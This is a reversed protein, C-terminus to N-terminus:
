DRHPKLGPTTEVRAAAAAAPATRVMSDASVLKMFPFESGVHLPVSRPNLPVRHKLPVSYSFIVCYRYMACHAIVNDNRTQSADLQVCQRGKGIALTAALATKGSGSGGELLCTLMPTKDSVRVQEM